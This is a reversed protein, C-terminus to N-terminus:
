DVEVLEIDFLLTAYGPIPGAGKIGYGLEPPVMLQRRGGEQMGVVGIDWGAIVQGAGLDFTFPTGRSYSSDVLTGDGLMLSYHVTVAHGPEATKGTGVRVETIRM